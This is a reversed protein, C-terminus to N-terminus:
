YGDLSYDFGEEFPSPYLPESLRIKKLSAMEAQITFSKEVDNEHMLPHWIELRYKGSSQVNVNAVGKENTKSYYPTEVVKIYALMWDHINCGLEVVGATDFLVHRDLAKDSIALEFPKAPSFSYVHHKIKDTNPFGVTTGTQVVLVHPDFQQDRQNMEAKNSTTQADVSRDLPYLAVVADSLVEDNSQYISIEFNLIESACVASAFCSASFLCVFSFVKLSKLIASM